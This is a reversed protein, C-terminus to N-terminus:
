DRPTGNPGTTRAQKADTAEIHQLMSALYAQAEQDNPELAVIRRYADVVGQADSASARNTSLQRWANTWDPRLTVAELLATQGLDLQGQSTRLAGLNYWAEAYDPATATTQEYAAIAGAPDSDHLLVGLNYSAGPVTDPLEAALRLAALAAPHNRLHQHVLGLDLWAKANEPALKTATLLAQLAGEPDHQLLRVAGLEAWATAFEEDIQVARLLSSEAADPDFGIRASGAWYWATASDPWIRELATATRAALENDNAAAAAIALMGHYLPRAKDAYLVVDRLLQVAQENGQNNGRPGSFMLQTARHFRAAQSTDTASTSPQEALLLQMGTGAAASDADITLCKSFHQKAMANNRMALAHYGLALEREVREARLTDRGAAFTDQEAWLYGSLSALLLLLVGTASALVFRAPERRAFRGIRRVLTLRRASVPRDSLFARLDNALETGNNYRHTSRKELCRAVIALLDREVHPLGNALSPPDIRAIAHMTESSSNTGFPRKGALAEFLVSGLSFVDSYADTASGNVQEPSMYPVSGLLAGSRTLQDDHDLSALGFDCMHAQGERSILINSPKVDRHVVGNKHAHGLGEAIPLLLRAVVRSWRSELGQLSSAVAVEDVGDPGEALARVIAHGTRAEVPLEALSLLVGALSRGAIHRMVLFPQGGYEGFQLIPVIAPHELRAVARGERLFRQRNPALWAFEPRLLKIAVVRGLNEQQARYVIGMGGAGIQELVAFSGIQKPPAPANQELMGIRELAQYRRRLSEARNPHAKCLGDLMLTRQLPEARLLHDLLDELAPEAPSHDVGKPHEQENADHM